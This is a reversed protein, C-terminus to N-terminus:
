NTKEWVCYNPGAAAVKWGEHENPVLEAPMDHKPGLKVVLKDDVHAVYIDAHALKIDLKSRSNIGNRKRVNILNKIAGDLGQDFYHEWMVTPMGPHSLIYAYGTEEQGHPFPWHQQTSGTDHNDIFTVARSPWWGMLGPQKGEPDILRWYETNKVAESIIGKTV